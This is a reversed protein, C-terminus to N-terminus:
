DRFEFAKLQGAQAPSWCGAASPVLVGRPVTMNWSEFYSTTSLMNIIDCLRDGVWNLTLDLKSLFFNCSGEFNVQYRLKNPYQHYKTRWHNHYSASKQPRLWFFESNTEFCSISIIIRYKIFTGTKTCQFHHCAMHTINARSRHVAGPLPQQYVPHFLPTAISCAPGSYDSLSVHQVLHLWVSNQLRCIFVSPECAETWISRSRSVCSNKCSFM